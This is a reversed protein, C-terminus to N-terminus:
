ACRKACSRWRRWRICCRPRNKGASTSPTTASRLRRASCYARILATWGGGAQLGAYGAQYLGRYIRGSVPKGSSSWQPTLYAPENPENWISYLSVESGYHRAVATM